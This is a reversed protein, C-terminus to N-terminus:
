IPFFGRRYPTAANLKPGHGTLPVLLAMQLLLHIFVRATSNSAEVMVHIESTVYAAPSTLGGLLNRM